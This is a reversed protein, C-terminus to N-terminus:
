TGMMPVRADIGLYISTQGKNVFTCFCHDNFVYHAQVVISCRNFKLISYFNENAQLVRGSLGFSPGLFSPAARSRWCQQSVTAKPQEYERGGRREPHVLNDGGNNYGGPVSSHGDEM